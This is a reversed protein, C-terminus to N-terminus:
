ISIICTMAQQGSSAPSSSVAPILQRVSLEAVLHREKKERSSNSHEHIFTLSTSRPTSLSNTEWDILDCSQGLFRKMEFSPYLTHSSTDQQLRFTPSLSVRGECEGDEKIRINGSDLESACICVREWVHFFPSSFHYLSCTQTLAHTHSSGKEQSHTYVSPSEPM